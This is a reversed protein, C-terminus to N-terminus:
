TTPSRSVLTIGAGRVKLLGHGSSGCPKGWISKLHHCLQQPWKRSRRSSIHTHTHTNPLHSSTLSPNIPLFLLHFHPRLRIFQVPKLLHSLRRAEHTLMARTHSSLISLHTHTHTDICMLIVKGYYEMGAGGSWWRPNELKSINFLRSPDDILVHSLGLCSPIFHKTLDLAKQQCKAREKVGEESCDTEGWRVKSRLARAPTM